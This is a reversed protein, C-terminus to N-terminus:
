TKILFYGAGGSGRIINVLIDDTKVANSAKILDAMSNVDMRNASVIVDGSRLGAQWTPTNEKMHILQVGRVHGYTPLYADYNRLIVGYFFPNQQELMAQYNNPDASKLSKVQSKGDRLISIKIESGARLLGIANKVQSSTEVVEGNVATIIDGTQLGASAAPSDPSVKTVLAGKAQPENFAQALEPTLTQMMVGVVGRGVKGYKILQDAVNKAMNMPIAFGIGVNGGSGPALIATNIGELEGRLNVLAGGSNGPNISADTQIFDEYGEIGLDSRKLASVIGSTVTQDLGYPNGIAVVFDGVKLSNSNAIPIPKLNPADIKLVAIDSAVDKGILKAKYHRGDQLTVTFSDAQTVLHANTIIYGQKADYVVGSGIAEFPSGVDPKNDDGRQDAPQSFPDEPQTIKGKAMINVVAPTVKELMPSLSPVKQGEVTQNQPIAAPALIPTIATASLLVLSLMLKGNM